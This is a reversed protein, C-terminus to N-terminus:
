RWKEDQLDKAMADMGPAYLVTSNERMVRQSPKSLETNREAWPTPDPASQSMAAPATSGSQEAAQHSSASALSDTGAPQMLRTKPAQSRAELQAHLEAIERDKQETLALWERERRAMEAERNALERERRDILAKSVAASTLDATVRTGSSSSAREPAAQVKRTPPVSRPNVPPFRSQPATSSSVPQVKRVLNPRTALPQM